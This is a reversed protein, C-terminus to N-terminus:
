LPETPQSIDFMVQFVFETKLLDSINIMLIIIPLVPCCLTRRIILVILLNPFLNGMWIGLVYENRSFFISKKGCPFLGLLRYYFCCLGSWHHTCHLSVSMVSLSYFFKFNLRLFSSVFVTHLFVLNPSRSWEGRDTLCRFPLSNNIKRSWQQYNQFRTFNGICKFEVIDENNNFMWLWRFSWNVNWLDRQCTFWVRSACLASNSLLYLVYRM